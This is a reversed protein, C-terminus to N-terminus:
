DSTLKHEHTWVVAEARSSVGLKAYVVSLYNRVTQESLSLESAIRKNDWGRGVLELLQRERGTLHLTETESTARSLGQSLVAMVQPSFWTGGGAVHRIAVAVAEPEDDKLIYGSVGLRVLERVAAQDRYATLIVIHIPTSQAHLFRVTETAPPGPMSLDLLLVDPQLTVCRDPVEDGTVAEGVVEIDPEGALMAQLGARVVGHDDALLVWITM